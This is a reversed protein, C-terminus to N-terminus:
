DYIAEIVATHRELAVLAVAEATAIQWLTRRRRTGDDWWRVDHVWPGAWAAVPGGGGPLAPCRLHGPAATPEGRGDVM